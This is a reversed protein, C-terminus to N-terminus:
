NNVFIVFAQNMFVIVKLLILIQNFYFRAFIKEWHLFLNFSFNIRLALDLSYPPYNFLQWMVLKILQSTFTVIKHFLFFKQMVIYWFRQTAIHWVLNATSLQNVLLIQIKQIGEMCGVNARLLLWKIHLEQRLNRQSHYICAQQLIFGTNPFYYRNYSLTHKYVRSFASYM